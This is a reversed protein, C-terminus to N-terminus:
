CLMRTAPRHRPRSHLLLQQRQRSPPPRLTLIRHRPPLHHRSPRRVPARCWQRHLTPHRKYCLTPRHRRHAGPLEAFPVRATLLVSVVCLCVVCVCRRLKHATSGPTVNPTAVVPAATPASSAGAVFPSARIQAELDKHEKEVAELQETLAELKAGRARFTQSMLQDMQSALAALRAVREDRDMASVNRASSRSSYHTDTSVSYVAGGVRGVM